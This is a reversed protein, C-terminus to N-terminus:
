VARDGELDEPVEVRLDDLASGHEARHELFLGPPEADAVLKWPQPRHDEVLHAASRVPAYRTLQVMNAVVLTAEGLGPGADDLSYSGAVAGAAFSSYYAALLFAVAIGAGTAVM